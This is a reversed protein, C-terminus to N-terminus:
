AVFVGREREGRGEGSKPELNYLCNSAALRGPLACEDLKASCFISLRFPPSSSSPLPPRCLIFPSPLIFLPLPSFGFGSPRPPTLFGRVLCTWHASWRCFDDARTGQVRQNAFQQRFCESGLSNHLPHWLIQPFSCVPSSHSPDYSASLSLSPPLLPVRIDHAAAAGKARILCSM